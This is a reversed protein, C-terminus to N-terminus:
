RGGAIKGCIDFATASAELSAAIEEICGAIWSRYVASLPPPLTVCLGGVLAEIDTKAVSDVVLQEIYQVIQQSVDCFGGNRGAVARPGAVSRYLVAKRAARKSAM